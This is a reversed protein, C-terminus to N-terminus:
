EEGKKVFDEDDCFKSEFEEITTEYAKNFAEIVEKKDPYKEELESIVDDDHWCNHLLKIAEDYIEQNM